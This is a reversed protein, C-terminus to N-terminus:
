QKIRGQTDYFSRKGGPSSAPLRQSFQFDLVSLPGTKKIIESANIYAKKRNADNDELENDELIKTALRDINEKNKEVIQTKEIERIKPSLQNKENLSSTIDFQLQQIRKKDVDFGQRQLSKLKNLEERDDTISDTLNNFLKIEEIDAKERKNEIEDTNDSLFSELDDALSDFNKDKEKSKKFKDLVEPAFMGFNSQIKTDGKAFEFQEKLIDSDNSISQKAQEIVKTLQSIDSIKNFSNILNIDSKNGTKSSITNGIKNALGIISSPDQSSKYAWLSSAINSANLKDFGMKKNKLLSVIDGIADEISDVEELGTPIIDVISQLGSSQLFNNAVNFKLQKNANSVVEMQQSFQKIDNARKQQAFQMFGLAEQVDARESQQQSQIIRNLSQLAVTGYTDAM